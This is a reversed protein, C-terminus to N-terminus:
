PRACPRALAHQFFEAGIRLTALGVGAPLCAFWWKLRGALRSAFRRADGDEELLSQAVFVAHETDDSIMGRGFLFHHRWPSAFWRRARMRSLGEGPLGLADGAALGLLCGRTKALLIADM